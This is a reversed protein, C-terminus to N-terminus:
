GFMRLQDGVGTNYKKINCLRCLCQTNQRTHEGGKTLPIIHDLNPYLPHYINKFDPRTKKGCLQCVYGDRRFVDLPDFDEITSLKRLARWKSNHKRMIAIGNESRQWEKVKKSVKDKNERRYVAKRKLIKDRNKYYYRKYRVAEDDEHTRKYEKDYEKAAVLNNKHYERSYANKCIKCIGSPSGNWTSKVFFEITNPKSMKCRSCAKFEQSEPTNEPIPNTAM